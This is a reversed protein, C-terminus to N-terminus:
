MIGWIHRNQRERCRSHASTHLVLKWQYNINFKAVCQGAGGLILELPSRDLSPGHAETALRGSWAKLPGFTNVLSLRYLCEHLASTTFGKSTGTRVNEVGAAPLNTFSSRGHPCSVLNSMARGQAVWFSISSPSASFSTFAPTFSTASPALMGEVDSTHGRCFGRQTPTHACICSLTM